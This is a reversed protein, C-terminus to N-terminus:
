GGTIWGPDSDGIEGRACRERLDRERPGLATIADRMRDAMRKYLAARPKSALLDDYDLPTGVVVIIPNRRRAGPSWSTVVTDIASNGLGNVFAPVVVPRAALAIQGAGPQAPLLTYPDATRSRTGEPHLGVMTRPTALFRSLREVADKNLAARAPDRFIPPYLTGGGVVLNIAMGLPKEYFFNSRVPFYINEMWTAGSEYLALTLVFLDFFSRHNTAFLVGREPIPERLWGINDAYIARGVALRAWRRGFRQHFQAQFRKGLPHENLLRALQLNRQETASLEGARPGDVM